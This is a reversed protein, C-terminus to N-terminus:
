RGSSASSGADFPNFDGSKHRFWARYPIRGSARWELWGWLALCFAGIAALTLIGARLNSRAVRM